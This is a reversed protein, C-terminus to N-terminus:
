RKVSGEAWWRESLYTIHTDIYVSMCVCLLALSTSYMCLGVGGRERGRERERERGREGERGGGKLCVIYFKALSHEQKNIPAWVLLMEEM